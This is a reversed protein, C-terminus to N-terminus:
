DKIEIKFEKFSAVISSPLMLFILSAGFGVLFIILDYKKQSVIKFCFMGTTVAGIIIGLISAYKGKSELSEWFKEM